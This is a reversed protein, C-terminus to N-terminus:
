DDNAVNPNQFFTYLTKDTMIISMTKHLSEELDWVINKIMALLAIGDQDAEIKKHGTTVEPNSRM